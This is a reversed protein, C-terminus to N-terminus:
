IRLFAKLDDNAEDYAQKKYNNKEDTNYHILYPVFQIKQESLFSQNEEKGSDLFLIKLSNTKIEKRLEVVLERCYVCNENGVYFYFDDKNNVLDSYEKPTIEDFDSIYKQYNERSYISDINNTTQESNNNHQFAIILILFLCISFLIYIAIRNNKMEKLM